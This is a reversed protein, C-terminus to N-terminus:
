KYAFLQLCSMITMIIIIFNATTDWKELEIEWVVVKQSKLNPKKVMLTISFPFNPNYM